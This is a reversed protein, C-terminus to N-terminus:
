PRRSSVTVARWRTSRRAAPSRARRRRIGALDYLRLSEEKGYAIIKATGRVLARRKDNDRSTMPFDLVVDREAPQEKGTM